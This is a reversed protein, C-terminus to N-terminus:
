KVNRSLLTNISNCLANGKSSAENKCNVHTYAEEQVKERDMSYSMEQHFRINVMSIKKLQYIEKHINMAVLLECTPHVVFFPLLKIEIVFVLYTRLV